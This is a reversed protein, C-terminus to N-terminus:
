LKQQKLQEALSEEWEDIWNLANWYKSDLWELFFVVFKNCDDKDASPIYLILKTTTYTTFGTSTGFLEKEYKDLGTEKTVKELMEEKFIPKETTFEYISSDPGVDMVSIKILGINKLVHEVTEGSRLRIQYKVLAFLDKVHADISQKISGSDEKIGRIAQILGRGGWVAYIGIFVGIVGIVGFVIAILELAM